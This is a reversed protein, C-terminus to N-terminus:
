LIMKKFDKRNDLKKIKQKQYALVQIVVDM